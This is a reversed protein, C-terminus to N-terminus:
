FVQYLFTQGDEGVLITENELYERVVERKEDDDEFNALDISYNYAIDEWHEQAFDCCLAIVDLELEEGIDREMDELFDFLIELGEYTFKDQRDMARFAERFDFLTVTTKM